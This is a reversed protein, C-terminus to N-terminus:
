KTLVVEGDKLTASLKDGAQFERRLFKQAIPFGLKRKILRVLPRAGYQASYGEQALQAKLEDSVTVSLGNEALLKNLKALEIEAIPPMDAPKLMNFVVVNSEGDDANEDGIRNLFEPRFTQRILGRVVQKVQAESIPLGDDGTQGILQYAQAGVNGTFIVITNSFDAVQGKGDTLKGEELLQLTANMVDPHSKEFEDFLVVSYPKRRVAETLQGGEEYGIYGPPAGILRAVEHKEMYESMDFRLVGNVDNFLFRALARALESKGVGSPGMFIFAGIPRKPDKLGGMATIIAESVVHIAEDQGVIAKKLEAEMRLYRDPDDPTVVIGTLKELALDIDAPDVQRDPTFPKPQLKRLAESQSMRIGVVATNLLELPDAPYKAALKALEGIAADSIGLALNPRSVQKELDAKRQLFIQKIEDAKLPPPVIARARRYLPKVQETKWDAESLWAVIKAGNGAAARQVLAAANSDALCEALNPIFVIGAQAQNFAAMLTNAPSASLDNRDPDILSRYHLIGDGDAALLTALDALAADGDYARPTILVVFPFHELATVIEGALAARVLPRPEALAKAEALRDRLMQHSGAPAVPATTVPAGINGAASPVALDPARQFTLVVTGPEFDDQRRTFDSGAYGPLVDSAIEAGWESLTPVLISGPQSADAAIADGTDIPHATAYQRSVALLDRLPASILLPTPGVTLTGGVPETAPADLQAERLRAVLDALSRPSYISGDAGRTMTLAYRLFSAGSGKGQAIALLLDAKTLLSRHPPLSSAAAALAEQMRTSVSFMGPLEPVTATLRSNFNETGTSYMGADKIGRSPGDTATAQAAM